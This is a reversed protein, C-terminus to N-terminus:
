LVVDRDLPKCFRANVVGVSLGEERLRAAAKVCNSLLTGYAVFVADEGWELVEAKGLEVPAVPREVQEQNAKPYRVAVPADHRIAFKLMPAVDREDGPAMLVMNPFLRMYVIDFCGHHTPGDPGTLGSRDMTFVVPLNQ